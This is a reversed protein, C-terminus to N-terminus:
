GTENMGEALRVLARAVFMRAASASPSGIAEAIQQHTFGMEISMIIVEQQELPLTALAKEYKEM